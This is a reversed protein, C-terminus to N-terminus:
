DEDMEQEAELVQGASDVEIEYEYRKGQATGTLEYALVSEVEAELLKIGPVAKEAADRVRQPVSSLPIELEHEGEDDDGDDDSEDGGNADDRAENRDEGDDDAEAESEIVQGEGSVLIAEVEATRPEFGEVAKAAAAKVAAPVRM